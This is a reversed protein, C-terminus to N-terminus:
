ACPPKKKSQSWLRVVTPIAALLFFAAVPIFKRFEPPIGYLTTIWAAANAPDSFYAGILGFLGALRVSWLKFAARWQPILHADAWATASTRLSM